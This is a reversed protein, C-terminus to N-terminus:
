VGEVLRGGDRSLSRSPRRWRTRKSLARNQAGGRGVEAGPCRSGVCAFARAWWAQAPPPLLRPRPHPIEGPHVVGCPRKARAGLVRRVRERRAGGREHVRRCGPSLWRARWSRRPPWPPSPPARCRACAAGIARRSPLASGKGGWDRGRELKFFWVVRVRKGAERGKGGCFGPRRAAPRPLGSWTLQHKHTTHQTHIAAGQKQM